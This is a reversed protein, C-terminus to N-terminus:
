GNSNSTASSSFREGDQRYLVEGAVRVVLVDGVAQGINEDAVQGL